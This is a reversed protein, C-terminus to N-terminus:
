FLTLQGDPAPTTSRRSGRPRSSELAPNLASWQEVQSSTTETLSITALTQEALAESDEEARSGLMDEQRKQLTAWVADAREGIGKETVLERAMAM